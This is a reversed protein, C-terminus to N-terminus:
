LSQKNEIKARHWDDLGPLIEEITMFDTDGVRLNPIIEDRHAKLQENGYKDILRPMLGRDVKRPDLTGIVNGNRKEWFELMGAYLSVGRGIGGQLFAVRLEPFRRILGGMLLAKAMADGPESFNGLMNYM